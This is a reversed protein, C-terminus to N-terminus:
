TSGRINMGTSGSIQGSGSSIVDKDLEICANAIAAENIDLPTNSKVDLARGARLCVFLM